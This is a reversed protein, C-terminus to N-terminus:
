SRPRSSRVAAEARALAESPSLAPEGASAERWAALLRAPDDGLLSALQVGLSLPDGLASADAAPESQRQAGSGRAAGDLMKTAAAVVRETVDEGRREAARWGRGMSLEALELRPGELVKLKAQQASWKREGLELPKELVWPVLVARLEQEGLNFRCLNHPFQRLELHYM